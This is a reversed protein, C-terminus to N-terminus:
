EAIVVVSGTFATGFTLDVNNADTINMTQPEVLNGASDFVQVLVLTTGLMHNVTVSTQSSWSMSFGATGGMGTGPPGQPGTPGAPGTAGTPGTAGVSGPPGTPGTAGAGLFEEDFVTAHGQDCTTTGVPCVRFHGVSLTQPFTVGSPSGSSGGIWFDIFVFLPQAPVYPASLTCTTAGNINWIISAATWTVVIHYTSGPSQGGLGCNSNHGSAGDGVYASQNITTTGGWEALDIEGYGLAPYNPCSLGGTKALTLCNLSQLWVAPWLGTGEGSPTTVTFDIVGYTFAFSDSLLAGGAYSYPIAAHAADGCLLSAPASVSLATIALGSNAIVNYPVDCGVSGIGGGLGIGNRVFWQNSASQAPAVFAFLCLAIFIRM